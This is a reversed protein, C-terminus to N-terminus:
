SLFTSCIFFSSEIFFIRSIIGEDSTVETLSISFSFLLFLSFFHCINRLYHFLSLFHLFLHCLHLFISSVSISPREPPPATLTIILPLCTRLFIVISGFITSLFSTSTKSSRIKAATLSAVLFIESFM